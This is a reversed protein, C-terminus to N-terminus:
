DPRQPAARASVWSELAASEEEEFLLKLLASSDLYIM